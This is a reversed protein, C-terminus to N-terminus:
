AARRQGSSHPDKNTGGDANEQANPQHGVNAQNECIHGALWVFDFVFTVPGSAPAEWNRCGCWATRYDGHSVDTRGPSSDRRSPLRASSLILHVSFGSFRHELVQAPEVPNHAYDQSDGDAHGPDQDGAIRPKATRQAENSRQHNEAAARACSEQIAHEAQACPARFLVIGSRRPRNGM